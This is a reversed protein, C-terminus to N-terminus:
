PEHGAAPEIGWVAILAQYADFVARAPVHLDLVNPGVLLHIKFVKWGNQVVALSLKAGRVEDRRLEVVRHAFGVSLRDSRVTLSKVRDKTDLWYGVAMIALVVPAGGVMGAFLLFGVSLATGALCALQFPLQSFHFSRVAGQPRHIREVLTDVVQDFDETQYEIHVVKSRYSDFVDIRQRLRRPVVGAVDRWRLTAGGHNRLGVDSLEVAAISPRFAIPIIWLLMTGWLATSAVIIGWMFLSPGFGAEFALAKSINGGDDLFPAALGVVLFAVVFLSRPEQGSCPGGRSNSGSGRM